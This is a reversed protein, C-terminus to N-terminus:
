AKTPKFRHVANATDEQGKNIRDYVGMKEGRQSPTGGLKDIVADITHLKIDIYSNITRILSKFDKTKASLISFSKDLEGKEEGEALDIIERYKKGELGNERLFKERKVDLGRLQLLLVQEEKLFKDLDKAKNIKIANLKETEFEILKDMLSIYEDMIEKVAMYRSM